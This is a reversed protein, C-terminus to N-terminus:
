SSSVVGRVGNHLHPHLGRRVRSAVAWRVQDPQQAALPRANWGGDREQQVALTAARGSVSLLSLKLAKYALAAVVLMYFGRFPMEIAAALVLGAVGILAAVLRPVWRSLSLRAVVSECRLTELHPIESRPPDPFVIEDVSHELAAKAVKPQNGGSRYPDAVPESCPLAALLAREVSDLEHLAPSGVDGMEDAPVRSLFGDSDIIVLGAYILGLAAVEAVAREGGRALALQYPTQFRKGRRIWRAPWLRMVAVWGLAVALTLACWIRVIELTNIM